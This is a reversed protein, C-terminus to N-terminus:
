HIGNLMLEMFRGRYRGMDREYINSKGGIEKVIKRMVEQVRSSLAKFSKSGSLFPEAEEQWLHDIPLTAQVNLFKHWDDKVNTLWPKDNHWGGGSNWWEGFAKVQEPTAGMEHLTVATERYRSSRKGGDHTERCITSLASEIEQVQPPLPETMPQGPLTPVVDPIFIDDIRPTVSMLMGNPTMVTTDDIEGSVVDFRPGIKVREGVKRYTDGSGGGGKGSTDVVANEKTTSEYRSNALNIVNYRNAVTTAEDFTYGCEVDRFKSDDPICDTYHRVEYLQKDHERTVCFIEEYLTPKSPQELSNGPLPSKHKERLESAKLIAQEKTLGSKYVVLGDEEDYTYQGQPVYSIVNKSPYGIVDYLSKQQEINMLRRAEKEAEKQTLSTAVRSYQPRYEDSYMCLVVIVDNQKNIMVDYLHSQREMEMLEEVRNEAEEKSPCYEIIDHWDKLYKSEEVVEINQNSLNRVICYLSLSNDDPNPTQGRTAEEREKNSNNPYDKTIPTNLKFLDTQENQGVRRNLNFVHDTWQNDYEDYDITYWLTKDISMKNYKDTTIVLKRKKLSSLARRITSISWFSFQEQWQEYTNYTWYRDDYFHKEQCLWFHLQSLIIAENLGLLTALDRYILMPSESTLGTRYRNSPRTNM